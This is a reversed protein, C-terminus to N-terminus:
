QLLHDQQQGQFAPPDVAEPSFPCPLSTGVQALLVPAASVPGLTSCVCLETSAFRFIGERKKKKRERKTGKRGVRRGIKKRRQNDKRAVRPSM